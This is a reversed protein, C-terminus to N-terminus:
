PNQPQLNKLVTATKEMIDAVAKSAGTVRHENEAKARLYAAYQEMLALTDGDRRNEIHECVDEFMDAYLMHLSADDPLSEASINHEDESLNCFIDALRRRTNEIDNTM